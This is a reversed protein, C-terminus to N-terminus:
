PEARYLELMMDPDTGFEGVKTWRGKSTNAVVAKMELLFRSTAASTAATRFAIYDVRGVPAALTQEFDRDEPIVLQDPHRSFLSAEPSSDTDLMLVAGSGLEADVSEFLAKWGDIREKLTVGRPLTSTRGILPAFLVHESEVSSVRADSLGLAQGGVSVVAVAGIVVHTLPRVWRRSDDGSGARVRGAVDMGMVISVIWAPYYYRTQGPATARLQQVFVIAPFVLGPAAFGLNRVFQRPRRALVTPLLVLMLLTMVVTMLLGFRVMDVVTPNATYVAAGNGSGKGVKLLTKLWFFADKMILKSALLWLAFMYLAPLMVVTVTSLWRERRVQLACCVALGAAVPLAEYRCLMLGGLGIATLALSGTADSRVWQAYGLLAVAMFFFSPAESMGNASTWLAVPSLAYAVVMLRALQLPTGCVRAVAALVPLVAAGWCATTLPGAFQAVGVHSLVWVFPVQSLQPLPMWYFGMAALHPDRSAIVHQAASTKAIADGIEYARVYVLWYAVVVYLVFAVLALAYPWRERPATTTRPSVVAARHALPARGVLLMSM